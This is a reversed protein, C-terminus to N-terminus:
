HVINSKIKSIQSLVEFEIKSKDDIKNGYTKTTKTVIVTFFIEELISLRIAKM